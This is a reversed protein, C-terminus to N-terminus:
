IAYQYAELAELNKIILISGHQEVLGQSKFDKM